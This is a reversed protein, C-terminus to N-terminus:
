IQSLQQRPKPTKPNQPAILLTKKPETEDQEKDKAQQMTCYLTSHRPRGVGQETVVQGPCFLFFYPLIATRTIGGTHPEQIGARQAWQPELRMPCHSGPQSLFGHGNYRDHMMDTTM